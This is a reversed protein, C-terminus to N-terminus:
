YCLSLVLKNLKFVVCFISINSTYNIVMAEETGKSNLVCKYGQNKKSTDDKSFDAVGQDNFYDVVCGDLSDALKEMNRHILSHLERGAWVPYILMSTIICISAGIAVTLLRHHALEFLEDVRYGSVSVLCFTLIFIMAGYDFKAKVSPIFRSFTAAAAALINLLDM